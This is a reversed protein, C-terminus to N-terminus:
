ARRSIMWFFGPLLPEDITNMYKLAKNVEIFPLLDSDSAGEGNELFWVEGSDNLYNHCNAYFARHFDWGADFTGLVHPSLPSDQERFAKSFFHPPNSVIIDFREGAPINSLGSTLWVHIEDGVVRQLNNATLTKHLSNLNFINIDAFAAGKIALSERLTSYMTLGIIGVGCCMDLVRLHKLQREGIMRIAGRATLEGQPTEGVSCPDAVYKVEGIQFLHSEPKSIRVIDYGLAGAVKRVLKKM